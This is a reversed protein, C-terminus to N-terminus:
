QEPIHLKRRTPEFVLKLPERELRAMQGELTPDFRPINELDIDRAM